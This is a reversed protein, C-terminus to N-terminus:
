MLARHFPCQQLPSVRHGKIFFTEWGSFNHIHFHCMFHLIRLFSAHDRVCGEGLDKGKEVDGLTLLSLYFSMIKSVLFESAPTHM